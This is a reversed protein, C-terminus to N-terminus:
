RSQRGGSAANAPMQWRGESDSPSRRAALNDTM